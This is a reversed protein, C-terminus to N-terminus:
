RRRRQNWSPHKEAERWASGAFWFLGGFFVVIKLLFLFLMEGLVRTLDGAKRALL